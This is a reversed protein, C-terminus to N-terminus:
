ILRKGVKFLKGADGGLPEHESQTVLTSFMLTM